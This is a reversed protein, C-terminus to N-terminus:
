PWGSNAYDTRCISEFAGEPAKKKIPATSHDSGRVFGM